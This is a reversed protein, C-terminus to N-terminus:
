LMQEMEFSNVLTATIRCRSAPFSRSSSGTDICRGHNASFRVSPSPATVISPSSV